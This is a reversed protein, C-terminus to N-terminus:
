LGIARKQDDVRQFPNAVLGAAVAIEQMKEADFLDRHDDVLHVPDIEARLAKGLDAVLDRRM